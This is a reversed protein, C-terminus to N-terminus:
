VTLPDGMMGGHDSPLIGGAGYHWLAWGEAQQKYILVARQSGMDGMLGTDLVLVRESIGDKDLDGEAQALVSAPYIETAAQASMSCLSVLALGLATFSLSQM